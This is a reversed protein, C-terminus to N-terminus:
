WDIGNVLVVRDVAFNGRPRHGVLSGESRLSAPASAGAGLRHMDRHTPNLILNSDGHVVASPVQLAVSHGTVDMSKGDDLTIAQAFGAPCLALKSNMYDVTEELSPAADQGLAVQCWMLAIISTFIAGRTTKRANRRLAPLALAASGRERTSELTDAARQGQRSGARNCQAVTRMERIREWM